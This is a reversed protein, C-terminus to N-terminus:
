KRDRDGDGRHYHDFDFMSMLDDIAPSNLPVWPNHEDAVPNPLNDRSRRSITGIRWNAEVFKDFSVHDAYDHVVGVGQSYPSVVILPIRTGDGFFDIPQVYGSDYYGGGEDMTIMIATDQWLAPNAQVMEIIKRSFGELLDLKSSAPHGDLIGDPKVISVAPLTGNQIDSYLDQIDKLNARLAPNTMVQTSYLFPNCINCYTDAEGTETGGAWGEGYYHWSVDNATLLLGLNPQTSPPVTFQDSGLPAPTGDGLYGPNYNNLLYYAGPQCDGGRFAKYPLSALYGRVAGVGPQSLDSCNVYSGGGYGDQTYFNNTGAQADPNEVQNAPPVAPNGNADAYYLGTGFGIAIHNAGTGGEMAQHFNDSVAYQHALSNFYSADGNQVNYFGLAVPGEHNGLQNYDAPQAAGNSGAGVTAEVWPFLDNQCGSPNRKTAVATDCDLQQWMQFFRHVPSGDYADYDHYATIDFPGNALGAPFRTDLTADPALGTGGSVLLGYADAPLAPEIAEAVAISPFYPTNPAGSVTVLELNVYPATKGPHLSYAGTDSAQWQQARAFNPGPTGDANVIGESLLNWVRQHRDPKFTAFVNDFTRNEGLILIVHKIPTLTDNGRHDQDPTGAYLATSTLAFAALASGQALRRIIGLPSLHM